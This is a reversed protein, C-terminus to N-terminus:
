SCDTVPWLCKKEVATEATVPRTQEGAFQAEGLCTQELEAQAAGPDPRTQEVKTQAARLMDTKCCSTCGMSMDKNCRAAHQGPCTQKVSNKSDMFM